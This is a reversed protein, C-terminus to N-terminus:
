EDGEAAKNFLFQGIVQELVLASETFKIRSGAVLPKLDGGPEIGIYKEGLLGATLISASSDRPVNDFENYISMTVNAEFTDPDIKISKVRGINVGAMSVASGAKLGGTNQFHADVEYASGAATQLSSVQFTLLFIAGVGILLFMGVAIELLRNRM